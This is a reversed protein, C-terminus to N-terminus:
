EIIQTIFGEVQQPIITYVYKHKNDNEDLRTLPKGEADQDVLHESWSVPGKTLTFEEIKEDDRNLACNLQEPVPVSSDVPSGDPNVWETTIRIRIPNQLM